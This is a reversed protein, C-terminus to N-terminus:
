KAGDDPITGEYVSDVKMTQSVGKNESVVSLNPLTVANAPAAYAPLMAAAMALSVVSARIRRSLNNKM